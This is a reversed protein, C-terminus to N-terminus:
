DIHVTRDGKLKGPAGLLLCCFLFWGIGFDRRIECVFLRTRWPHPPLCRTATMRMSRRRRRRRRRRMSRTQIASPLIRRRRATRRRRSTSPTKLSNTRTDRKSTQLSRRRVSISPKTMAGRMNVTMLEPMGTARTTSAGRIM